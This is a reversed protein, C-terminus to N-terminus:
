NVKSNLLPFTGVENYTYALAPAHLSSLASAVLWLWGGARAVGTFLRFYRV